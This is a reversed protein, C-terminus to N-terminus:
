AEALQGDLEALTKDYSALAQPKSLFALTEKSLRSETASAQQALRDVRAVDMYRYDRITLLHGRHRRLEALADIFLDPRDWSEPSIRRLLAAQTQEAEALAQRSQQQIAQVKEYEDLIL